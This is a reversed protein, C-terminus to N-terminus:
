LCLVFKRRVDNFRIVVHLEFLDVQEEPIVANWNANGSMSFDSVVIPGYQRYVAQKTAEHIEYESIVKISNNHLFVRKLTFSCLKNEDIIKTFDSQTRKVVSMDSKNFQVILCGEIRRQCSSKHKQSSYLGALVLKDGALAIEFDFFNLDALTTNGQYLKGKEMDYAFVGYARKVKEATLSPSLFFLNGKEDIVMRKVYYEKDFNPLTFGGTRLAKLQEDFVKYVIKVNDNGKEFPEFRYLIFKSSEATYATCVTNFTNGSVDPAEDILLTAECNLSENMICAYTSRVGKKYNYTILIPKRKIFLVKEAKQKDALELEKTLEIAMDSIRVKDITPDKYPNLSGEKFRLYYFSRGDSGCLEENSIFKALKPTAISMANQASAMLTGLVLICVLYKKM